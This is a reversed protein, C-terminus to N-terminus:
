FKESSFLVVEPETWTIGQRQAHCDALINYTAVTFRWDENSTAGNQRQPFEVYKRQLLPDAAENGNQQASEVPAEGAGGVAEKSLSLPDPEDKANANEVSKADDTPNSNAVAQQLEKSDAKPVESQSVIVYDSAIDPEEKELQEADNDEGEEGASVKVDVADDIANTKEDLKDSDEAKVDAEEELRCKKDSNVMDTALQEAETDNEASDDGLTETVDQVKEVAEDSVEEQLKSKKIGEGDEPTPAYEADDELSRKRKRCVSLLMNVLLRTVSREDAGDVATANADEEESNAPKEDSAAVAAIAQNAAKAAARSGLLYRIVSESHLAGLRLM